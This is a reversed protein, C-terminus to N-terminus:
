IRGRELLRGLLRPGIVAGAIIFGTTLLFLAAICAAAIGPHSTHLALAAILLLGLSGAILTEVGLGVFSAVVSGQRRSAEDNLRPWLLHVCLGAGGLAVILGALVVFILAFQAVPLRLAVSGAILAAEILLAVPLVSFVWKAVFIDRRSLPALGLLYLTRGERNISTATITGITLVSFLILLGYLLLASTDQSTTARGRSITRFLSFAIILLPYALAALQQPDRRLTRWDKGLLPWWPLRANLSRVSHDGSAHRVARRRATSTRRVESYSGWGTAMVRSSGEVALGLLVAAFALTAGVYLLGDHLEGLGIAALAHGPWATPLWIPVAYGTVAGGVSGGSGIFLQSAIFFLGGLLAGAVTTVTRARTPPLWRLVAVVVLTALSVPAIPLILVLALTAIDFPLGLHLSHGVAFLGPVGLLLIPAFDLSVTLIKMGMILRVPAPTLLLLRLDSRYTLTGLVVLVGYFFILAPLLSLSSVLSPTLSARGGSGASTAGLHRTLPLVVIYILWIAAIAFFLLRVPAARRGRRSYSGLASRLLLRGRLRLLTGGSSGTRAAKM